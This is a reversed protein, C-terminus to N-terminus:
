KDKSKYALLAERILLSINGDFYKKAKGLVIKMEDANVKSVVLIKRAYPNPISKTRKM